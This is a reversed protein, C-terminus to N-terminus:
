LLVDADGKKSLALINKTLGIELKAMTANAEKRQQEMEKFDREIAETLHDLRDDLVALKTILSVTSGKKVIVGQNCAIYGEKENPKVYRLVSVKLTNVFDVHRPLLTFFGDPAEFDVQKVPTNLAIGVPTLVKLTMEM